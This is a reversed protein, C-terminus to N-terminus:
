VNARLEEHIDAMPMFPVRLPLDTHRMARRWAPWLDSSPDVVWIGGMVSDPPFLRLYPNQTCHGATTHAYVTATIGAHFLGDRLVDAFGGDGGPGSDRDDDRDDDGDRGTDCAYLIVKLDVAAKPKVAAVLKAIDPIRFGAQIGDRWGHCLMVLADLSGPRLRGITELVHERREYMPDRPNFLHISVGKGHMRAFKHAEPQFAGTADSKGPSNHLPAFVVARM